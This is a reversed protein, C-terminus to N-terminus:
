IVLPSLSRPLHTLCKHTRKRSPCIFATSLNETLQRLIPLLHPPPTPIMTEKYKWDDLRLPTQFCLLKSFNPPMFTRTDSGRTTLTHIARGTCSTNCSVDEGRAGPTSSQKSRMNKRTISSRHPAHSPRATHRRRRIHFSFTWM